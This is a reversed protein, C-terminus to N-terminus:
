SFLSHGTLLLLYTFLLIGLQAFAFKPWFRPTDQPNVPAAAHAPFLIIECGDNTQYNNPDSHMLRQRIIRILKKDEIQQAEQLIELYLDTTESFENIHKSL